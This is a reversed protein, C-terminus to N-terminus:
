VPGVRLVADLKTKAYKAALFDAVQQRDAQGPFRSADNFEAFIEIKGHLAQALRASAAGTITSAAPAEITDPNVILVRKPQEQAQALHADGCLLLALAFRLCAPRSSRV